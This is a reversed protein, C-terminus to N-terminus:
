KDKKRLSFIFTFLSIGFIFIYIYMIYTTKMFHNVVTNNPSKMISFCILLIFFLYIIKDFKNSNKINLLHSIGIKIFYCSFVVLMFTSLIWYASLTSEVREIFGGITVRRLIQFEPYQYLSTLEIGLVNLTLFLIIEICIFILFYYIIMYKTFNKKNTYANKPICTVYFLPLVIYAVYSMSAKLPPGIGNLLFPFINSIKIQAIIALSAIIFFIFSIFFIIIGSKLIVQIKKTLMYIIPILFMITVFLPPTNYLFHASIFNTLNWFFILMYSTVFIILLLNLFKGLAKGFLKEIIQFINLNPYKNMIFIFILYPLFGIICGIIPALWADEKAINIYTRFNMGCLSGTAIFYLIVGIQSLNLKNELKEEM